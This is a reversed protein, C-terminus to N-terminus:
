KKLSNKMVDNKVSFLVKDGLETIVYIRGKKSEPNLLKVLKKDLLEALTRSIHSKNIGSDKAILTPNEFGNKISQLARERYQSRQIYNKLIIIEDSKM